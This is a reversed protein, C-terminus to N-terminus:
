QYTFTLHEYKKFYPVWNLLDLSYIITVHKIRKMTPKTINYVYVILQMRYTCVIRTPTIFLHM